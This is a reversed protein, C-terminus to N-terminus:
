KKMHWVDLPKGTELFSKMSSLVRPWGELIGHEMDSAAELNDHTVTLKVMEGMPELDFTVRSQVDPKKADAWTIVLKQPPSFEVVSGTLLKERTEGKVHSWPSGIKWDSVNEFGWYQRTFPPETIAQWIKEPTTRIYIVFVHQVTTM